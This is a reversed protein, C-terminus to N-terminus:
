INDPIFISLMQSSCGGIQCRGISVPQSPTPIPDTSQHPICYGYGTGMCDSICLPCDTILHCNKDFRAALPICIKYNSSPINCIMGKDCDMNSTCLQYQYPCQNNQPPLQYTFVDSTLKPDSDCYNENVCGVGPVYFPYSISFFIRM